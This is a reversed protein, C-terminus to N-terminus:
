SMYLINSLGNGQKVKELAMYIADYLATSGKPQISNAAKSIATADSTFDCVIMPKSAFGLLFFEDNSNSANVFQRLAEQARESMFKMSGSVDFVIGISVPQDEESFFKIEQKVNDEYIEFNNKDLGWVYHGDTDSATVHLNVLTSDLRVSGQPKRDVNRGASEALITALMQTFVIAFVLIKKQM